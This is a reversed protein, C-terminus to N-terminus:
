KGPHAQAAVPAVAFVSVVALGAAIRSVRPTPFKSM